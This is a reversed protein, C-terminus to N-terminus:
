THEDEKLFTLKNISVFYNGWWNALKKMKLKKKSFLEVQELDGLPFYLWKHMIHESCM